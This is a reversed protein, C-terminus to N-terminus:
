SDEMTFDDRELAEHLDLLDDYTLPPGEHVELFEAPIGGAVPKVGGSLLLRVIRDDAPKTVSRRCEPCIFAYAGSAGEAVRLVIDSPKLSVEGCMPCAAKITTM